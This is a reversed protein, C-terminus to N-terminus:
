KRRMLIWLQIMYAAIGASLITGITDTNTLGNFYWSAAAIGVATFLLVIGLVKFFLSRDFLTPRINESVDGALALVNQRRRVM